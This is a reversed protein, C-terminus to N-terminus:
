GLYRGRGGESRGQAYRGLCKDFFYRIKCKLYAPEIEDVEGERM